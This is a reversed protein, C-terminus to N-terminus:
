YFIGAPRLAWRPSIKEFHFAIKKLNPLKSSPFRVGLGEGWSLPAV